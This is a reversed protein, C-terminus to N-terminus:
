WTLLFEDWGDGEYRCKTERCTVPTKLVMQTVSKFYGEFVRCYLPHIIFSKIRVIIVKEKKDYKVVELRGLSYNERWMEPAKQVVRDVSVFYKMFFRLVLSTKSLFSGLEVMEEESFFMRKMLLLNLADLSLPYFGLSKIESYDLAFGVTKLERELEKVAEEGMRKKLFDGDGKLAVGRMEGKIKKLADLEEKLIFKSM